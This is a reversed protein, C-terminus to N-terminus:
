ASWARIRSVPVFPLLPDRLLPAPGAATRAHSLMRATCTISKMCVIMCRRSEFPLLPDRLIPALGAATRLRVTVPGCGTVAVWGLGPLVIDHASEM